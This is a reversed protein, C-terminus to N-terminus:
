DLSGYIPTSKIVNSLALDIGQKVAIGSQANLSDDTYELDIPPLPQKAWNPVTPDTEQAVGGAAANIKEIWEKNGNLVYTKNEEIIFVTSGMAINTPIKSLETKTDIMYEYMGYATNGNQKFIQIM